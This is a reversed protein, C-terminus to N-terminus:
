IFSCARKNLVQSYITQNPFFGFLCVFSMRFYQNTFRPFEHFGSVLVVCKEETEFFDIFGKAFSQFLNSDFNCFSM